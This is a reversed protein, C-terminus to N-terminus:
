NPGGISPPGGVITTGSSGSTGGTTGAGGTSGKGGQTAAVAGGVAAGGILAIIAIKKNRSAKSPRDVNTQLIGASAVDGRLSATVRIRFQGSLRNPRLGRGTAIGKPDTQVTLSLGSDGFTGSAGTSPLLFTVTAGSVPRNDDDVVSVVPARARRLRVDNLAGDGELVKIAIKPRTTSQAAGSTSLLLLIAISKWHRGQSM